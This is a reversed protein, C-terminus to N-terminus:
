KLLCDKLSKAMNRILTFYLEPGDDISAGLPDLVGTGANTNETITMVLKPEFQPESFVCTADLNRVKERLEAVREAGPLVEPSVTISGVASVGFRNEFYQYADHFVVYGRGKVPQLEADIEAVLNDLKSMMAEANAEYASANAPDAEILAEEIEHIMAKANVPDLWVHPDTGHHGHDDHDDHGKHAHEGHHEDHHGMDPEQAIPEVDAGALDKFFHESAEFEFPMHETFFTYAGDKEIKVTFVTMDKTDDFNLTYAKDSVRLVDNNVSSNTDDSELMAEAAEESDEIHDSAVIAMKMAPDAYAGDVKAFSWKYTGASLEFVGAWEFAHDGHGHGAHDDHGHDDHDDKKHDDHDDHGHDDKKHDDHDDHGHDDHDDKKHDDHDNHGHEDHDKHDDHDDHEDHAHADFAGGERFDLKILGHADMLPVSTANAAIGEISNELFAELDHSMWFVLDAEQLKKAQSPKLSYTHPSGAGEVLLEPKGVGEMVAAVLSHVPKISAIVKVDANALTTSSVLITTALFATSVIRMLREGASLFNM